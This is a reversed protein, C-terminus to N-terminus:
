HLHIVGSYYDNMLEQALETELREDEESRGQFALKSPLPVMVMLVM